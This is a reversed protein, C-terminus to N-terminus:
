CFFFHCLNCLNWGDIGIELNSIFDNQLLNERYASVTILLM